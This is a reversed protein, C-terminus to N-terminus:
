HLSHQKMTQPWGKLTSEEAPRSWNCAKNQDWGRKWSPPAQQLNRKCKSVEGLVWFPFREKSETITYSRRWGTLLTQETSRRDHRPFIQRDHQVGLSVEPQYSVVDLRYWICCVILIFESSHLSEKKTQKKGIEWLFIARDRLWPRITHYMMCNFIIYLIYTHM